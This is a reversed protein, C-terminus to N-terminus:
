VCVIKTGLELYEIKVNELYKEIVRIFNKAEVPLDKMSEIAGLDLHDWGRLYEVVPVVRKLEEVTCPYGQEEVSLGAYSTVVGIADLGTLGNLQTLALSDFGSISSAYKLQVLDLWGLGTDGTPFHSLIKSDTVLSPFWDKCSSTYAECVGIVKGIKTPPIGLGTSASGPTTNHSSVHDPYIGFDIDSFVSGSGEVVVKKGEKMYRNMLAVTDVVCSQIKSFMRLTDDLVCDIDVVLSRDYKTFYTVLEEIKERISSRSSSLDGFRIGNRIMKTSFGAGLGDVATGCRNNFFKDMDRHFDFVIHARSSIHLRSVINPDMSREIALVEDFLAPLHVCMGNGLVINCNKNRACGSSLEPIYNM